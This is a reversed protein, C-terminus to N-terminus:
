AQITELLAQSIGRHVAPPHLRDGNRAGKMEATGFVRVKEDASQRSYVSRTVEVAMRALTSLRAETLQAIVAETDFTAFFGSIRVPDSM